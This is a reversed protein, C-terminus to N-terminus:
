AVAGWAGMRGRLRPSMLSDPENIPLGEKFDGACLRRGLRGELCGICLWGEGRAAEWVHNQVMYREWGGVPFGDPDCLMLDVDCDHCRTGRGEAVLYDFTVELGCNAEFNEVAIQLAKASAGRDILDYLKGAYHVVMKKLGHIALAERDGDVSVV